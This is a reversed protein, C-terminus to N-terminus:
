GAKGGKPFPFMPYVISYLHELMELRFEYEIKCIKQVRKEYNKIDKLQEKMLKQQLKLADLDNNYSTMSKFYAHSNSYGTGRTVGDDFQNSQVGFLTVEEVHTSYNLDSNLPDQMFSVATSGDEYFPQDVPPEGRRKIRDLNQNFWERDDQRIKEYQKNEKTM